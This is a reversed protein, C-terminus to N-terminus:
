PALTDPGATLDRLQEELAEVRSELTAKEQTLVSVAVELRKIKEDKTVIERDKVVLERDSNRKATELDDVRKRLAGFDKLQDQLIKIVDAQVVVLGSSGRVMIEAGEAYAKDVSAQSERNQARIRFLAGVGAVFSGGLVTAVAMQILQASM